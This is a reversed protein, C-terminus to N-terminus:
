GTKHCVSGWCNLTYRDAKQFNSMHVWAFVSKAVYSYIGTNLLLTQQKQIM